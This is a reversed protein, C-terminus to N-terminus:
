ADLAGTALRVQQGHRGSALSVLLRRDVTLLIRWYDVLYVDIHWSTHALTAWLHNLGSIANLSRVVQLHPLACLHEVAFLRDETFFAADRTRHLQAFVPAVLDAILTRM